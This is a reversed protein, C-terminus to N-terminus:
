IPNQNLSHSRRWRLFPLLSARQTSHPADRETSENQAVCSANRRAHAGRWCSPRNARDRPAALREPNLWYCCVAVAVYLKQAM